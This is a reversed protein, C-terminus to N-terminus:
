KKGGKELWEVGERIYRMPEDAWGHGGSYKVLKVRAGAEGLRKEAVEAHPTLRGTATDMSFAVIKDEDQLCVYLTYPM